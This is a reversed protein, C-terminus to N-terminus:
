TGLKEGRMILTAPVIEPGPAYRELLTDIEFDARHLATVMDEARHVRREGIPEPDDWRRTTRRPDVPDSCLMAAHPVSIVFHAGHKLVRHVQRFVRDLDDVFSLAHVSIAIDMQDAQIFALDALEARRFGVAVEEAMALDRGCALQDDDRDVATVLAGRKTLGVADHGAGCGLVLVTRGKIEGRLRRDIDAGLGPGFEIYDLPRRAGPARIDYTAM